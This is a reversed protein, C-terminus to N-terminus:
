RLYRPRKGQIAHKALTRLFCIQMRNIPGLRSKKKDVNNKAMIDVGIEASPIPQDLSYVAKVSFKGEFKIGKDINHLDEVIEPILKMLKKVETVNIEQASRELKNIYKRFNVVEKANRLQLATNIYDKEANTNKVIFDAILPVQMSFTESSLEKNMNEYFKIIEKEEKAIISKRLTASNTKYKSIFTARKECPLYNCGKIKCVEMYYIAGQAVLSTEEKYNNIYENYSFKTIDKHIESIDMRKIFKHHEQLLPYTQWWQTKVGNNVYYVDDWLTMAYLLDCFGENPIPRNEWVNSDVAVEELSWNDILINAM